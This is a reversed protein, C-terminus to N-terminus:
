DKNKNTIDIPNCLDTLIADNAVKAFKRANTIM